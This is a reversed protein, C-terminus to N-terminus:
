CSGWTLRAVHDTKRKTPKIFGLFQLESVAQVFRAQLQPDVSKKISMDNDPDIVAIFAQMWDYLNIMRGCELHLKYAVSVDPLSTTIGSKDELFCCSCQLYHHPNALATTLSARPMGVLHRKVSSSSDFFCIEHLPRSTPCPLHEKFTRELFQLIESRLSEFANPRKVKQKAMEQLKEKLHFRDNVQVQLLPTSDTSEDSPDVDTPKDTDLSSFQSVLLSLEGHILMLVDDEDSCEHLMQLSDRLLPLIEERSMTGLTKWAECFEDSEVLSQSLCSSLVERVQRGLPSHPLGGTLSNVFKVLHCFRVYWCDLNNLMDEIKEKTVNDDVLLAAQDKPSAKEVASRFSNLKRINDLQISSMNSIRKKRESKECCLFASTHSTFHEIMSFRLGKIFNKVSLDHYLFIDLLLKFTRGGIHFPIQDTMLIKDIIHTLYSTSPQAQFTEMAVRASADQSLCAHVAAPSTAVGFVFVFPLIKKYESCILILDQLVHSSFSEVDEFIVVLPGSYSNHVTNGLESNEIKMKKQPSSAKRPSSDKKPSNRKNPSKSTNNGVDKYWSSLVTMNCQTRKVQPGVLMEDALDPDVLDNRGMLQTVMKLVAGRVTASDRSQLRAVHPTVSGILQQFLSSFIADHDPMNVGTVLCATPIDWHNDTPIETNKPCPEKPSFEGSKRVFSILDEFVKSHTKQQLERTIETVRDWTQLYNQYSQKKTVDDQGGTWFQETGSVCKKGKKARKFPFVGKSVSVTASM